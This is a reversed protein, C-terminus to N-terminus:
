DLSSQVSVTGCERQVTRESCEILKALRAKNPFYGRQIEVCLTMLRQYDRPNIRSQSDPTRQAM